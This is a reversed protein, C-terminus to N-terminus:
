LKDLCLAPGLRNWLRFIMTSVHSTLKSFSKCCSDCRTLRNFAYVSSCAGFPLSQSVFYCPEGSPNHVLIVSYKLSNASVPVQRYAKELDLRKASWTFDTFDSSLTGRKTSGDMFPMAVDGDVCSTIFGLLSIHVDLDQLQLKNVQSYSNTLGSSKCDDIARPKLNEGQLLLFRRNVLFDWFGM